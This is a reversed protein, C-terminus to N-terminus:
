NTMRPGPITEKERKNGDKGRRQREGERTAKVMGLGNLSWTKECKRKRKREKEKSLM